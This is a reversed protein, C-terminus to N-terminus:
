EFNMRQMLEVFRPENRLSNWKPEVKLFVMKADRQEFGRELWALTEETEGLGNHVLAIHYTPDSRETSLKSLEELM